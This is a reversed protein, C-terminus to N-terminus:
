SRPTLQWGHKGHWHSSLWRGAVVKWLMCTSWPQWSNTIIWACFAAGGAAAAPVCWCRCRSISILRPVQFNAPEQAQAHSLSWGGATFVVGIQYNNYSTTSPKLKNLKHQEVLVSTAAFSLSHPVPLGSYYETAQDGVQSPTLCPPIECLKSRPPLLPGADM